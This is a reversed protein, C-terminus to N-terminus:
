WVSMVLFKDKSNSGHYTILLNEFILLWICQVGFIYINYLLLFYLEKVIIVEVSPM